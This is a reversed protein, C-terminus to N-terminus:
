LKRLKRITKADIKAAGGAAKRARRLAEIIREIDRTTQGLHSRLARLDRAAGLLTLTGGHASRLDDLCLEGLEQWRSAQLLERYSSRRERSRESILLTAATSTHPRLVSLLRNTARMPSSRPRPPASFFNLRLLDFAFCQLPLDYGHCRSEGIAMPLM